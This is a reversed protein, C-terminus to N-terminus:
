MTRDDISRTNDKADITYDYLTEFSRGSLANSINVDNIKAFDHLGYLSENYLALEVVKKLVASNIGTNLSISTLEENMIEKAKKNNDATLDDYNLNGANKLELKFFSNDAGTIEKNTTFGKANKWDGMSENYANAALLHYTARYRNLKTTTSLNKEFEAFVQAIAYNNADINDAINQNKNFNNLMTKIKKGLTSSEYQLDQNLANVKQNMFTKANTYRTEFETDQNIDYSTWDANSEVFRQGGFEENIYYTPQTNQGNGGNGSGDKEIVNGGAPQSCGATGAMLATALVGTLLGKTFYKGLKKLKNNEM